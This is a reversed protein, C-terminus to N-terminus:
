ARAALLKVKQTLFTKTVWYSGKLGRLLSPTTLPFGGNCPPNKM